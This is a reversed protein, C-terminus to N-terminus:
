AEREWIKLQDARRFGNDFFMRLRELTTRPDLAVALGLAGVVMRACVHPPPEPAVPAEAPAMSGGSLFVAFALCGAPTAIGAQDGAAKALRRKDDNPEVLWEEIAKMAAAAGPRAAAPEVARISELGWAIAEGRPLVQALVSVGERPRGARALTELYVRVPAEPSALQRADDDLGARDCLEQITLVTAM